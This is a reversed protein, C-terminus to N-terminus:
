RRLWGRQSGGQLAARPVKRTLTREGGISGVGWHGIPVAWHPRVLSDWVGQSVGSGRGVLSSHRALGSDYGDARGVVDGLTPVGALVGEGGVRDAARVEPEEAQM